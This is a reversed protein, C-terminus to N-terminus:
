NSLQNRCKVQGVPPESLSTFLLRPLNSDTIQKIIAHLRNYKWIHLPYFLTMCRLIKPLTRNRMLTFNTLFQWTESHMCQVKNQTHGYIILNPPLDLKEWNLALWISLLWVLAVKMCFCVKDPFQYKELLRNSRLVEMEIIFFILMFITFQSNSFILKLNFNCAYNLFCM